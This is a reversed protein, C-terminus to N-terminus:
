QPSGFFLVQPIFLLRLGIHLVGGLLYDSLGPLYNYISLAEFLLRLIYFLLNEFGIRIQLLYFGM